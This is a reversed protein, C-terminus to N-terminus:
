GRDLPNGFVIVLLLDDSGAFLLESTISGNHIMGLVALYNLKLAVLPVVNAGEKSTDLDGLRVLQFHVAKLIYM